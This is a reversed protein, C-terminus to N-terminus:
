ALEVVEFKVVDLKEIPVIVSNFKKRFDETEPIPDGAEGQYQSVIVHAAGRSHDSRMSPQSSFTRVEIGGEFPIEETYISSEGTPIPWFVGLQRELEVGPNPTVTVSSRDPVPFFGQFNVDLTPSQSDRASSGSYDYPIAEVLRTVNTLWKLLNSNIQAYDLTEPTTHVPM